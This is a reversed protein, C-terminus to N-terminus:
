KKWNNSRRGNNQWKTVKKGAKREKKMRLRRAIGDKYPTKGKLGKKASICCEELAMMQAGGIVEGSGEGEEGEARGKEETGEMDYSWSFINAELKGSFVAKRYSRCLDQIRVYEQLQGCYRQKDSM